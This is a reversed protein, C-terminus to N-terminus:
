ELKAIYEMDNEVIAKFPQKQGLSKDTRSLEKVRDLAFQVQFYLPQEAWLTGDNDFVAIREVPPVFDTSFEDTVSEVFKIIENKTDTDNWSKLYEKQSQFNEQDRCSISILLTFLFLQIIGRLILM